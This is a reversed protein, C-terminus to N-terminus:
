FMGPGIGVNGLGGSWYGQDGYGSLSQRHQQFSQAGGRRFMGSKAQRRTVQQPAGMIQRVLAKVQRGKGRKRLSRRTRSIMRTLKSKRGRPPYPFRSVRSVWRRRGRRGGRVKWLRMGKSRAKMLLRRLRRLGRGRRRRGVARTPAAGTPVPMYAQAQYSPAYSQAMPFAPRYRRRQRWPAGPARRYASSVSPPVLPSVSPATATYSPSLRAGMTPPRVSPIGPRRIGGRLFAPRMHREAGPGFRHRPRRLVGYGDYDADPLMTKMGILPM